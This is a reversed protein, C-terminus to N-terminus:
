VNQNIAPQDSRFTGGFVFASLTVKAVLSLIIYIFEGLEYDETVWYQIYMNAPFTLYLALLGFVLYRVWSPPGLDDGFNKSFFNAADLYKSIIYTWSLVFPLFAVFFTWQRVFGPPSLEITLGLLNTVSSGVIVFLNSWVDTIGVLGCIAVLMTPSSIGYEFWRLYNVREVFIWSAYTPGLLLIIIHALCSMVSFSATVLSLYFTVLAKEQPKIQVLPSTPDDEDDEQEEKQEEEQQNDQMGEGSRSVSYTTNTWVFKWPGPTKNRAWAFYALQAVAILGHVVAAALNSYHLKNITIDM